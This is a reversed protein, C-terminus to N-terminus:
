ISSSSLTLRSFFRLCSASPFTNIIAALFAVVLVVALLVAILSISRYVPATLEKSPGVSVFTWGTADSIKQALFYKGGGASLSVFASDVSISNKFADMGAFDSYFNSALIKASDPNTLYNGNADLIFSEGSKSLKTGSILETLDGLLIDLAMVGYNTGNKQVLRAITTVPQKSDADVYPDTVAPSISKIGKQYWERSSKDYDLGPDWKDNSYMRGGDKMPVTDAFYLSYLSSDGKIAADFADEAESQEIEHSSVFVSMDNVITQPKLLFSNIKACAQSVQANANDTVNDEITSMQMKIVPVAILVSALIVVLLNSFIIKQKVSFM